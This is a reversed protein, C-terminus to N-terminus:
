GGLLKQVASEHEANSLSGQERLKALQELVDSRSMGPLIGPLEPELGEAFLPRMEIEGGQSDLQRRLAPGDFVRRPPIPALRLSLGLGVFFSACAAAWFVIPSGDARGVHLLLGLVVFVPPAAFTFFVVAAWDMGAHISPRPADVVARVGPLTWGPAWAGSSSLPSRKM